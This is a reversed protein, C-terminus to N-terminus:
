VTVGGALFERWYVLNNKSCSFCQCLRAKLIVPIFVVQLKVVFYLHQLQLLCMSKVLALVQRMFLWKKGYKPLPFFFDLKFVWCVWLLKKNFTNEGPLVWVNINGIRLFLQPRYFIISVEKSSANGILLILRLKVKLKQSDRLIDKVIYEQQHLLCRCTLAFSLAKM